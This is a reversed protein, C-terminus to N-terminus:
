PKLNCFKVTDMKPSQVFIKVKKGKFKTYRCSFMLGNIYLFIIVSVQTLHTAKSIPFGQHTSTPSFSVTHYGYARRILRILPLAPM